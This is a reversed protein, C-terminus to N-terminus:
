RWFYVYFIVGKFIILFHGSLAYEQQVALFITILQAEIWWSDDDVTKRFDYRKRIIKIDKKNQLKTYKESKNKM